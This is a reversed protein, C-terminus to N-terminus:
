FCQVVQIHPHFVLPLSAHARTTKGVPRSRSPAREFIEYPINTKELLNGLFLGSLGAGIILIKPPDNIICPPLDSGKFGLPSIDNKDSNTTMTHLRLALLNSPAICTTLYFFILQLSFSHISLFSFVTTLIRSFFSYFILCLVSILTTSYIGRSPLLLCVVCQYWVLPILAGGEMANAMQFTRSFSLNVSEVFDITLRSVHLLVCYPLTGTSACEKIPFHSSVLSPFLIILICSFCLFCLFCLCVFVCSHVM